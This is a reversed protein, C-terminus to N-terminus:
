GEIIGHEKIKNLLTKYSVGLLPAAKSRNWHVRDLTPIILDREAQLMAAQAAEGLSVVARGATLLGNPGSTTAAVSARGRLVGAETITAERLSPRVAVLPSTSKALRSRQAARLDFQLREEDQLIVFRKVVNELERVNGPWDHNQMAQRLAPSNPPVPRNYHKTYKDVFFKFLGPIEDSRERLPPVVIEIVKLRYYLDERFAAGDLMAELDRNTAAIIRVDSTVRKNSGLRTFEGDQLVHLLKSQLGLKVEGIEDLLLTGHHANEFKGIRLASAGTFAGKEHGFLESELLEDPLAACNVKVFPGNRRPSRDHIARAVLEKGVGSEGRILVTVDSDAVRDVMVAIDRMVKSQEWFFFAQARDDNVQRRPKRAEAVPPNRELVQLAADLAVEGPAEPDDPKVVYDKAGLEIAEVITKAHEHGSLMIVQLDNHAAILRRLTALGDMGPTLVYLLVVDPVVGNPVGTLFEEGRGYIGPHYGRGELFTKLYSAFALDDDAIAVLPAKMMPLASPSPQFVDIGSIAM